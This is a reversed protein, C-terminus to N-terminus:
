TSQARKHLYAAIIFVKEQLSLKSQNLKLHDTVTYKSNYFPNLSTALLPCMNLDRSQAFSDRETRMM